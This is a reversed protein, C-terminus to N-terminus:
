ELDHMAKILYKYDSNENGIYFVYLGLVAGLYNFYIGTHNFAELAIAGITIGFAAVATVVARRDLQKRRRVFFIASYTLYYLEIIFGTVYRYWGPMNLKEPTGDLM